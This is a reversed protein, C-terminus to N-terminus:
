HQITIADAFTIPHIPFVFMTKHYNYTATFTNYFTCGINDLPLQIDTSTNYTNDIPLQIWLIVEGTPRDLASTRILRQELM